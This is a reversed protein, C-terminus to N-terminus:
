SKHLGRSYPSSSLPSPNMSRKSNNTGRPIKQPNSVANKRIQFLPFISVPEEKEEKRRITSSQLFTGKVFSRPADEPRGLHDDDVGISIALLHLLVIEVYLAVESLNVFYRCFKSTGGM